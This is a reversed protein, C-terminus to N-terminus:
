TSKCAKQGWHLLLRNEESEGLSDTDVKVIGSKWLFVPMKISYEEWNLKSKNVNKVIM